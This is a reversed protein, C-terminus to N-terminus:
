WLRKAFEILNTIDMISCAWLAGEFWSFQKGRERPPQTVIPFLPQFELFRFLCNPSFAKSRWRKVILSQLNLARFLNTKRHLPCHGIVKYTRMRFNQFGAAQETKVCRWEIVVCDRLLSPFPSPAFINSISEWVRAYSDLPGIILNKLISRQVQLIILM